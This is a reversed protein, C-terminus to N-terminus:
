SRFSVSSSILNFLSSTVIADTSAIFMYGDILIAVIFFPLSIRRSSFWWHLWSFLWGRNPYWGIQCSNLGWRRQRPISHIDHLISFLVLILSQRICIQMGPPGLRRQGKRFLWALKGASLIGCCRDLHRGPPKWLFSSPLHSLLSAQFTEAFPSSPPPFGVGLIWRPFIPLCLLFGSWRFSVNLNLEHCFVFEM